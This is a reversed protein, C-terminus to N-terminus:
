DSNEGPSLIFSLRPLYPLSVHAVENQCKDAGGGQRQRQACRGDLRSVSITVAVAMVAVMIAPPAAVMVAPAMVVPVVAVIASSAVEAGRKRRRQNIRGRASM